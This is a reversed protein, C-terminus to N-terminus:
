THSLWDYAALEDVFIHARYARGEYSDPSPVDGNGEMEHLLAPAVLYALYTLSGPQDGPQPFFSSMLQPRYTTYRRLDVLWHQCGYHSAADLMLTYAEQIEIVTLPRLIRNVIFCVDARYSLSLFERAPLPHNM